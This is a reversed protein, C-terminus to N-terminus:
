KHDKAHKQACLKTEGNVLETHNCLHYLRFQGFASSKVSMNYANPCSKENYQRCINKEHPPGSFDPPPMTFNTFVLRGAPTYRGKNGAQQGGNQGGKQGGQRNGGGRGGGQQRQQNKKGKQGQQQGGDQQHAEKKVESKHGSWWPDWLAKLSSVDMFPKSQMWNSANVRFVHDLFGALVPAKKFGALQAELYDTSLLFSEIVLFSYDWPRVLQAAIKLNRFATKLGSLETLEKLSERLVLGDESQSTVTRIGHSARAVNAVTYM